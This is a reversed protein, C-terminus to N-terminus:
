MVGKAPDVKYGLGLMTMQSIADHVKMGSGNPVEIELREAEQETYQTDVGLYPLIDSMIAGVVPAVIISGYVNQMQPEDLLVLVAVKPNDSPAIGLFSSIYEEKGGKTRLENIKESTGTKGGIRYGPIYAYRGSGDSDKVVHELMMRLTASSEESIVQRRVVPQTKSVVNGDPDIVEDVVYPQMLKGGNCAATVATLIQLPTVTFTQGFSSSALEEGSPKSLTDIDYFIGEAEGPLDIHTPEMLGFRDFYEYFNQPGIKAGIMM